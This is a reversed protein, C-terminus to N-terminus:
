RPVLACRGPLQPNTATPLSALRVVEDAHLAVTRLALGGLASIARSLLRAGAPQVLVEALSIVTATLDDDSGLLETARDHYPDAANLHAILVSADLVIM